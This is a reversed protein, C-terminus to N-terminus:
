KGFFDKVADVVGRNTDELRDGAKDIADQTTGVNKQVKGQVQRAAGQVQSHTTGVARQSRGVDQQVKGQIQKGLGDVENTASGLSQKVEGQIRKAQGEIKNGLGSTAIQSYALPASFAPAVRLLSHVPYNFILTLLCGFTLLLKSIQRALANLKFSRKM